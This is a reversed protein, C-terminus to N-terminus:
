NEYWELVGILKQHKKKSINFFNLKEYLYMGLHKHCNTHAYYFYVTPHDTKKSKRSFIVEHGQKAIDPNFSM